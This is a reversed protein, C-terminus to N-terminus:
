GGPYLQDVLEHKVPKSNPSQRGKEVYMARDAEEWAHQLGRAPERMALGISANIGAAALAKRLRALLNAAAVADCEVALIAFEDGGVRAAVDQSRV